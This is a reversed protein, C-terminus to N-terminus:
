ARHEATREALFLFFKSPTRRRRIMAEVPRLAWRVGYFPKLVSWRLHLATSLARLRDPTLYEGQELSSSAFGYLATFRARKQQVMQQGDREHPYWATDAICVAGASRTCRLAEALTREYNEAYHFSANFIALDFVGDAFPLREASAQVRDFMRPLHAAYHAGAGLGDTKNLLLDVAVSRHGLMSLRYSLWGNGAGLDLIRLPRRFRAAMPAVVTRELHRYTASRIHWQSSHKGSLDEFPLALYYATDSTGRAEAQRISEYEAIFNAYHTSQDPSLMRWIGEECLVSERCHPCTYTSLAAPTLTTLPGQCMPCLLEIVAEDVRLPSATTMPMAPSVSM